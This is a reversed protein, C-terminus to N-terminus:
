SKLKNIRHSIITHFSKAVIRICVLTLERLSFIRGTQVPIGPGNHHTGQVLLMEVKSGSKTLVVLEQFCSRIEHNNTHSLKNVPFQHLLAQDPFFINLLTM